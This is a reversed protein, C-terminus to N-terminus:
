ESDLPDNERYSDGDLAEVKSFLQRQVSVPDGRWIKEQYLFGDSGM